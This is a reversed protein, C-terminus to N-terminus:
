RAFIAMIYSNVSYPISLKLKKVKCIESNSKQALFSFSQLKHQLNKLVPFQLGVQASSKKKKTFFSFLPLPLRILSGM